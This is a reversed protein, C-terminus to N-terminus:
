CVRTGEADDLVVHVVEAALPPSELPYPQLHQEVAEAVIGPFEEPEEGPLPSALVPLRLGHLLRRHLADVLDRPRLGMSFPVAVLGPFARIKTVIGKTLSRLKKLFNHISM